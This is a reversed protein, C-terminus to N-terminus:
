SKDTLSKRWLGVQVWNEITTHAMECKEGTQKDWFM